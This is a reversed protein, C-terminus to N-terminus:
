TINYFEDLYRILNNDNHTIFPKKRNDIKIGCNFNDKISEWSFDVLYIKNNKVLVQDIKMNNHQINLRELDNM